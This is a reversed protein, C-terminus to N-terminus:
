CLIWVVPPLTAVGGDFMVLPLVIASFLVTMAVLAAQGTRRISVSLYVGLSAAFALHAGAPIALVPIALPDLGGGIVCLVLTILLGLLLWRGSLVSGLWKTALLQERGDPLTLLMDLTGEERERGISATAQLLTSLMAAGLVVVAIIRAMVNLHAQA